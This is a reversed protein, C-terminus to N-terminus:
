PILSFSLAAVGIETWVGDRDWVPAYGTFPLVPVGAPPLGEDNQLQWPPSKGISYPLALLDVYFNGVALFPQFANGVHHGYRELSRQEFYLPRHHVNASKYMLTTVPYQRPQYVGGYRMAVFNDFRNPGDVASVAFLGAYRGRGDPVDVSAVEANDRFVKLSRQVVTVALNFSNKSEVAVTKIPTPKGDTMSGIRISTPSAVVYLFGRIRDQRNLIGVTGEKDSPDLTGRFALGFENRPGGLEVDAAVVVGRAAVPLNIVALEPQGGAVHMGKQNKVSLTSRAPDIEGALPNVLWMGGLGPRDANFRDATGPYLFFEASYQKEINRLIQDESGLEFIEERTPPATKPTPVGELQLATLTGPLLRERAGAAETEPKMVRHFQAGELLAQSRRRAAELERIADTDAPRQAM